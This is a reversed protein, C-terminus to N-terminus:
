APIEEHPNSFIAIPCPRAPPSATNASFRKPRPKRAHTRLKPRAALWDKASQRAILGLGDLVPM